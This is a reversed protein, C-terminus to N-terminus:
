GRSGRLEGLIKQITGDRLVGSLMGEYFKEGRVFLMLKTILKDDM